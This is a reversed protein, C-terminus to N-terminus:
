TTYSLSLQRATPKTYGFGSSVEYGAFHDSGFKDRIFLPNSRIETEIWGIAM